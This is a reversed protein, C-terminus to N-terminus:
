CTLGLRLVSLRKALPALASVGLGLHCRFTGGSETAAARLGAPDIGALARCAYVM